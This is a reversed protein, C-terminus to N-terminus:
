VQKAKKILADTLNMYSLSDTATIKAKITNRIIQLNRFLVKTNLVFDNNSKFKEIWHILLKDFNDEDYDCEYVEKFKDKIVLKTEKVWNKLIEEYNGQKSELLLLNFKDNLGELTKSVGDMLMIANDITDVEEILIEM